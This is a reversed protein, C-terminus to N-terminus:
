LSLSAMLLCPDHAGAALDIDFRLLVWGREFPFDVLLASCYAMYDFRQFASQRGAFDDVPHQTIGFAIAAIKEVIEGRCHLFIRNRGQQCSDAHGPQHQTLLMLGIATGSIGIFSIFGIFLVREVIFAVLEFALKALHAMLEAFRTMMRCVMQAVPCLTGSFAEIFHKPFLRHRNSCGSDGDTRQQGRREWRSTLFFFQHIFRPILQVVQLLFGLFGALVIIPIGGLVPRVAILQLFAGVAAM